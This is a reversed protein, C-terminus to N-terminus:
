WQEMDFVHSSGSRSLADEICVEDFAQFHKHWDTEWLQTTIGFSSILHHFGLLYETMICDEVDDGSSTSFNPM